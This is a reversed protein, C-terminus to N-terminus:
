NFVKLDLWDRSESNTHLNKELGGKSRHGFFSEDPGSGVM